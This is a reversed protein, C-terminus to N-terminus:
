AHGGPLALRVRAFIRGLARRPNASPSGAPLAAQFGAPLAAPAPAADGRLVLARHGIAADSRSRTGAVLRHAPRPAHLVAANWAQVVNQLDDQLGDQLEDQQSDRAIAAQADIMRGVARALKWALRLEGRLRIRLGAGTIRADEIGAMAAGLAAIDARLAECFGQVLGLRTLEGEHHESANLAAKCELLFRATGTTSGFAFM